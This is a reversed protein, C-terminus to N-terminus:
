LFFRKKQWLISHSQRMWVQRANQPTEFRYWSSQIVWFCYIAIPIESAASRFAKLVGTRRKSFETSRKEAASCFALFIGRTFLSKCRATYLSNTLGQAYCTFHLLSARYFKTNTMLFQENFRIRHYLLCEPLFSCRTSCRVHTPFSKFLNSLRQIIIFSTSPWCCSNM